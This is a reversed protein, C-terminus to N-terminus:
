EISEIKYKIGNPMILEDGIVSGFLKQGLPSAASLCIIQQSLVVIKGLSISIFFIGNDTYILSGRAGRTCIILPDIKLLEAKQLQFQGLQKRKNEQEIQIMALSTEHKDGATSKTEGAGTEKLEKLATEVTNIKENILHLCSNFIQEKTTPM